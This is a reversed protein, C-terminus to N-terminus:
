QTQRRLCLAHSEDQGEIKNSQLFLVESELEHITSELWSILRGETEPVTGCRYLSEVTVADGLQVFRCPIEEDRDQRQVFQMLWCDQCLHQRTRDSFNPCSPSEEFIYPARWPSRASRRYNGSKVFELESKLLQLLNQQNNQMVCGLDLM